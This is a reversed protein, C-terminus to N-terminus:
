GSNRLFITRRRRPVVTRGNFLRHLQSLFLAIATVLMLKTYSM